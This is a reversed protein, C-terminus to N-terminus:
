VSDWSTSGGWGAGSAPFHASRSESTAAASRNRTSVERQGRSGKGHPGVPEGPLPAVPEGVPKLGNKGRRTRSRPSRFGGQPDGARLARWAGLLDGFLQPLRRAEGPQISGRAPVTHIGPRQRREERVAAPGRHATGQSVAGEGGGAELQQLRCERGPSPGPGRQHAIEAVLQSSLQLGERRWRLVIEAEGIEM